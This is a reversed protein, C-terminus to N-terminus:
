TPKRANRHIPGRSRVPDLLTLDGPEVAYGAPFPPRPDMGIARLVREDRYYARAVVSEVVSLQNTGDHRMRSLLASQEETGLACLAGGAAQNVADLARRLVPFDRNLSAIMQAVIAPDDAGPMGYAASAPIMHGAICRLCDRAANSLPPESSFTM